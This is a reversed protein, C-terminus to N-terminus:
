RSVRALMVQTGDARVVSFFALESAAVELDGSLEQAGSQGWWETVVMTRGQVTVALLQYRVGPELRVVTAHVTVGERRNLVYVSM